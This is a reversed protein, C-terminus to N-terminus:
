RRAGAIAFTASGSGTVDWFGRLHRNVTGTVTKREWTAATVTTFTILDSWASNDPSHQIKFVVGTFGSFATVHLTGVAGGASSATNDVNTSNGDTTEAALVHLTVGVDVGDNPTGTLEVKVLDKVAGPYDLASVNGEGFFAWSGIAPTEAFITVLLGAATTRATDLTAEIDGAAANFHGSIGLSGSLQGPHWQEGTSLLNSADAYLRQHEFHWGAISGSLHASNVLVRTDKGHSRSL